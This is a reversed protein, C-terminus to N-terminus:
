TASLKGLMRELTLAWALEDETPEPPPRPKFKKGVAWQPDDYSDDYITRPTVAPSAAKPRM